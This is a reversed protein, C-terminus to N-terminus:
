VDTKMNLNQTSITKTKAFDFLIAILLSPICNQAITNSQSWPVYIYWLLYLGSLGVQLGANDAETGPM